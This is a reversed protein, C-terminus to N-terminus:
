KQILTLPEVRGASDNWRLLPESKINGSADFSLHLFSYTQDFQVDAADLEFVPMWTGTNFYHVNKATMQEATHTHGFTIVKLNPIATKIKEAKSALSGPPALRVKVLIRGFIYSLVLLLVNKIQSSIISTKDNRDLFSSINVGKEKLEVYILFMVIVLPLIIIFIFTFLYKTAHWWQKKPIIKFVFPIYNFILKLALPFRERILIPLINSSPRINDLYPYNLEIKNLLYRNFFAGFSLNLEMGNALTPPGDAWCINEYRHGHELYVVSNIIVADDAFKIRDKASSPMLTLFFDRVGQWYWELDHNGKVVLLENGANLWSILSMFVQQHGLSCVLLKWVSKYDNTKLGYKVERGSISKRLEELTKKIGVKALAEQWKIFDDESEPNNKIRLFDIFDGNIVLLSTQKGANSNILKSLFRAFARDAFFNETGSYNGDINIGAALHLDSVVFLDGSCEMRVIPEGYLPFNLQPVQNM